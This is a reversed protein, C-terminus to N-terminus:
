IGEELINLFRELCWIMWKQDGTMKDTCHPIFESRTPGKWNHFWENAPRPMPIKAPMDMDPYLIQFAERVIYKTDGNRIRTYDIPADLYTLSYPGVFEIGATQCANNYTGM